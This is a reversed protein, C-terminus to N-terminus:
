PVYVMYVSIIFDDQAESAQVSVIVEARQYHGYTSSHM